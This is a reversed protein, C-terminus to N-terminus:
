DRTYRPLQRVQCGDTMPHRITRDGNGRREGTPSFNCRFGRIHDRESFQEPTDACDSRLSLSFTGLEDIRVTRGSQLAERMTEVLEKLVARVDSAKATCSREIIRELERQDMTDTHVAQAYYKGYNKNSKINCRQLRYNIAM